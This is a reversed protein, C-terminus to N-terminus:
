MGMRTPFFISVVSGEVKPIVTYEDLLDKEFAEVDGTQSEVDHWAMDIKCLHLQRLSHTGAMFKKSKNLKEIYEEPIKEGTEYHAGFLNLVDCM